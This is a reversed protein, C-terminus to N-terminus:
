KGRSGWTSKEWNHSSLFNETIKGLLYTTPLVGNGIQVVPRIVTEQVEPHDSDRHRIRIGNSDLVIQDASWFGNGNAQGDAPLQVTALSSDDDRIGLMQKFRQASNKTFRYKTFYSFSNRRYSWIM